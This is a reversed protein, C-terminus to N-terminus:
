LQILVIVVRSVAPGAGKILCRGFKRCGAYSQKPSCATLEMDVSLGLDVSHVLVGGILDAVASVLFSWSYLWLALGPQM